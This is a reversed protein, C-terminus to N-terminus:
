NGMIEYVVIWVANARVDPPMANTEPTGGEYGIAKYLKDYEEQTMADNFQDKLGVFYGYHM